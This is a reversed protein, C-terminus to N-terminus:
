YSVQKRQLYKPLGKKRVKPDNEYKEALGEFGIAM